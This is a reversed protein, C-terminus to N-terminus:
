IQIVFKLPTIKKREFYEKSQFYYVLDFFFIDKRRMHIGSVNINQSAKEAKSIQM